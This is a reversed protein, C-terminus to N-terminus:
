LSELKSPTLILWCAITKTYILLLQYTPRLEVLIRLAKRVASIPGLLNGDDAYWM